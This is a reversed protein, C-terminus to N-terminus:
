APASRVPAESACRPATARRRCGSRKAEAPASLSVRRWVDMLRSLLDADTRVCCGAPPSGGQNTRAADGRPVLYAGARETSIRRQFKWCTALGGDRLSRAM